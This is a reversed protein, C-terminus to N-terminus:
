IRDGRCLDPGTRSPKPCARLRRHLLPTRCSWRGTEDGRPSSNEKGARIREARELLPQAEAHRGLDKLVLALNGLSIAVFPHDPGHAAEGIALARELLPRAQNAM